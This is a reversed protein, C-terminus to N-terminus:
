PAGREGAVRWEAELAALTPYAAWPPGPFAPLAPSTSAGASALDRAFMALADAPPLSPFLRALEADTPQFRLVETPHGRVDWDLVVDVVPPADGVQGVVVALTNESALLTLSGDDDTALIADSERSLIACLRVLTRPVPGSAPRPYTPVDDEPPSIDSTTDVAGGRVDSHRPDVIMTPPPSRLPPRPVHGSISRARHAGARAEATEARLREASAHTYRHTTEVVPVRESEVMVSMHEGVRPRQPPPPLPTTPPDYLAGLAARDSQSGEEESLTPTQEPDEKRAADIAARIRTVASTSFRRTAGEVPLTDQSVERHGSKDPGTAM